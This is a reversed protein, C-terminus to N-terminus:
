MLLLYYLFWLHDLAPLDAGERLASWLSVPAVILWWLVIPFGIRYLRDWSFASPSKRDLTLAAFFGALMFFLPMRWNHIWLFLVGVWVLPESGEEPELYLVLAHLLVGMLM